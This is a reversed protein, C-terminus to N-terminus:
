PIIHKTWVHSLMHTYTDFNISQILSIGKESCKGLIKKQEKECRTAPLYLCSMKNQRLIHQIMLWAYTQTYTHTRRTRRTSHQAICQCLCGCLCMCECGSGIFNIYTFYSFTFYINPLIGAFRWHHFVISYLICTWLCPFFLM